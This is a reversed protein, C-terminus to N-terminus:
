VVRIPIEVLPAVTAYGAKSIYERCAETSQSVFLGEYRHAAPLPPDGAERVPIVEFRHRSFNYRISCKM